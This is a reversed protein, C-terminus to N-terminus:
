TFSKFQVSSVEDSGLRSVVEGTNYNGPTFLANAGGYNPNRYLRWNGSIVRLSAVRSRDGLNPNSQIQPLSAGDFEGNVYFIIERMMLRVSNVDVEDVEPMRLLEGQKSNRDGFVEIFRGQYNVGEYLRWSGGGENNFSATIFNFRIAPVSETLPLNKGQLRPQDYLTLM